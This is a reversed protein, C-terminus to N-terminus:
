TMVSRLKAVGRRVRPKDLGGQRGRRQMPDKCRPTPGRFQRSKSFEDRKGSIWGFIGFYDFFMM